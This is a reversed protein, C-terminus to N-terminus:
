RKEFHILNDTLHHFGISQFLIVALQAAVQQFPDLVLQHLQVIALEGVPDFTDLTLEQVKLLVAGHLFRWLIFCEQFEMKSVKPDM